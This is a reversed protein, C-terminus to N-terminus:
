KNAEIRDFFNDDSLFGKHGNSTDMLDFVQMQYAMFEDHSIWHDHNTDIKRVMERTRLGREYGGTAFTELLAGNSNIFEWASISGKRHTDLRMFVQEQYSAWEERSIMGDGDTDIRNKMEASRLGRAYGGTAFTVMDDATAQQSNFFSLAGLLAFVLLPARQSQLPFHVNASPLLHIMLM